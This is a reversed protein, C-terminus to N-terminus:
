LNYLFGQFIIVIQVFQCNADEYTLIHADICKPIRINGCM